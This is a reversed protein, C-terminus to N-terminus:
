SIYAIMKHITPNLTLTGIILVLYGVLAIISGSKFNYKGEVVLYIIFSFNIIALVLLFIQLYSATINKGLLLLLFMIGTFIVFIITLGYLGKLIKVAENEEIENLNKCESTKAKNGYYSYSIKNLCLKNLYFEPILNSSYIDFKGEGLPLFMSALIMALTIVVVALNGIKKIDVM